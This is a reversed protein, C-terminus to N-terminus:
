DGEGIEAMGGDGGKCYGRTREGYTNKKNTEKQSQENTKNRLNYM